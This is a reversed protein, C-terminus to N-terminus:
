EPARELGPEALVEDTHEGFAPLDSRSRSTSSWPPAPHVMEGLQPHVERCRGPAVREMAAPVDDLDNM